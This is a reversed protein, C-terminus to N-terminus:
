TRSRGGSDGMPGKGDDQAVHGVSVCLESGIYQGLFVAVNGPALFFQYADDRSADNPDSFRSHVGTPM